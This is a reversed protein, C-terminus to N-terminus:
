LPQDTTAKVTMFSLKNSLNLM